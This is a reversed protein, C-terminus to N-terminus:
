IGNLSSELQSLAQSNIPKEFNSIIKGLENFFKIFPKSDPIMLTVAELRDRIIERMKLILEKMTPPQVGLEKLEQELLKISPEFKQALGKMNRLNKIQESLYWALAQRTLTRPLKHTNELEIGRKMQSTDSINLARIRQDHLLRSIRERPTKETAHVELFFPDPEEKDNTATVLSIEFDPCEDRLAEYFVREMTDADIQTLVKKSPDLEITYGSLGRERRIPNHIGKPRSDKLDSLAKELNSDM